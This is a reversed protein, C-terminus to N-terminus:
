FKRSESPFPRLRRQKGCDPPERSDRSDGSDRSLRRKQFSGKEFSRKESGSAFVPGLFQQSIESCKEYSM